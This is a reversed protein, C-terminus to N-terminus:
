KKGEEVANPGRLIMTVMETDRSVDMESKKKQRWTSEGRVGLM